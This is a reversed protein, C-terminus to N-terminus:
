APLQKAWKIVHRTVLPYVVCEVAIKLLYTLMINEFNTVLGATSGYAILTFVITDVAGGAVTSLICRAFLGREGMQTHMRSMIWDNVRTGLLFALMSATFILPSVTFITSFEHQLTFSSDSPMIVVVMLMGVSMLNMLFALLRLHLARKFGYVEATLDSTVYDVVITVIGAGLALGFFSETKIASLNATILSAASVSALIAYLSEKTLKM